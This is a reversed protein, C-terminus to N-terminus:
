HVGELQPQDIAIACAKLTSRLQAEFQAALPRLPPRLGPEILGMLALMAKVPIPNSEVAGAQMLPLLQYHLERASRADGGL